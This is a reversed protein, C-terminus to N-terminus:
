DHHVERAPGCRDCQFTLVIQRGLREFVAPTVDGCTPCTAQTDVPLAAFLDAFRAMTKRHELIAPAQGISTLVHGNPAQGTVSQEAASTM